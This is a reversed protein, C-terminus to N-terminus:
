QKLSNWLMKFRDSEVFVNETLLLGRCHATKALAKSDICDSIEGKGSDGSYHDNMYKIYKLEFIRCLAEYRHDEYMYPSIEIFTSGPRMWILFNAVMNPNSILVDSESIEKANCEFDDQDCTLESVDCDACMEMIVSKIVSRAISLYKSILVKRKKNKKNQYFPLLERLGIVDDSNYKLIDNYIELASRTSDCERDGKKLGIVANKVLAPVESNSIKAPLKGLIRKFIDHQFKSVTSTLYLNRSNTNNLSKVTTYLPLLSNIIFNYDFSNDNISSIFIMEDDGSSDFAIEDLSRRTVFPEGILLDSVRRFPYCRSGANFFVTPFSLVADSSFLIHGQAIAIRKAECWREERSNGHCKLQSARMSASFDLKSFNMKFSKTIKSFDILDIIEAMQFKNKDWCQIEGAYNGVVPLNFHFKLERNELKEPIATFPPMFININDVTGQFGFYDAVNQKNMNEPLKKFYIKFSDNQYSIDSIQNCPNARQERYNRIFGPSNIATILVLIVTCILSVNYLKSRLLM